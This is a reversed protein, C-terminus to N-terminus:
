TLPISLDNCVGIKADNTGSLTGHNENINLMIEEHNAWWQVTINWLRLKAGPGAFWDHAAGPSQITWALRQDVSVRRLPSDVMTFLFIWKRFPCFWGQSHSFKWKRFPGPEVAIYLSLSFGLPKRLRGLPREQALACTASLSCAILSAIYKRQRGNSTGFLQSPWSITPEMTMPTVGFPPNVLSFGMLMWWRLHNLRVGIEPFGWSMHWYQM